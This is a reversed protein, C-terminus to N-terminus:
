QSVEGPQALSEGRPKARFIREVYPVFFELPLTDYAPDFSNQDWEECFRAASDFYPHGRFAERANADRGIHNWYYVGQFVGHHRVVWFVEDSVFPRIIESAVISHNDPAIVDGMDHLLAAVIWEDSAGCRYARTATQLVHDLRSIQYGGDDDALFKLMNIIRRPLTESFKEDLEALWRFEAATGDKMATFKVKDLANVKKFGSIM